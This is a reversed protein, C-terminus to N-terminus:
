QQEGGRVARQLLGDDFTLAVQRREIRGETRQRILDDLSIVHFHKKLFALRKRLTEASVFYAPLREHENSFSVGHWGVITFCRRTLLRSIAFLGLCKFAWLLVIKLRQLM